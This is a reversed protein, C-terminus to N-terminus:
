VLDLQKTYMYSLGRYYYADTYLPNKVICASFAISASDYKGAQYLADGVAYLGSDKPMGKSIYLEDSAKLLEEITFSKLQSFTNLPFLFLFAVTYKINKM